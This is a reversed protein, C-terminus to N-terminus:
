KERRADGAASRARDPASRASWPTRGAASPSRRARGAPRRRPCAGGPRARRPMARPATPGRPADCGARAPSPVSPAARGSAAPRCRPDSGCRRRRARWRRRAAPRAAQQGRSPAASTPPGSSWTRSTGSAPATTVKRKGRLAPDAPPSSRWRRSARSRRRPRGAPPRSGRRRYARALRVEVDRRADAEPQEGVPEAVRRQGDDGQQARGQRAVRDAVHLATHGHEVSGLRRRHLAAVIRAEEVQQRQERDAERAGDQARVQHGQVEEELHQGDGQEEQHGAEAVAVRTRMAKMLRAHPM